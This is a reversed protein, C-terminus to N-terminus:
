FCRSTTYYNEERIKRNSDPSPQKRLDSIIFARISIYVDNCLM